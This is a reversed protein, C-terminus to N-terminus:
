VQNAGVFIIIWMIVNGTAAPYNEQQLLSACTLIRCIKNEVKEM